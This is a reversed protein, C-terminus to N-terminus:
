GCIARIREALRIGGTRGKGEGGKGESCHSWRAWKGEREEDSGFRISLVHLSVSKSVLLRVAFSGRLSGSSDRDCEESGTCELPIWYARVDWM